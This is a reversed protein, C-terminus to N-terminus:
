SRHDSNHPNILMPRFIPIVALTWPWPWRDPPTRPDANTEWNGILQEGGDGDCKTSWGGAAVRRRTGGQLLTTADRQWQTTEDDDHISIITDMRNTFTFTGEGRRGRETRCAPKKTNPRVLSPDFDCRPGPPGPGGHGPIRM